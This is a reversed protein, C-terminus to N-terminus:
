HWYNKYFIISIVIALILILAYGYDSAEDNAKDISQDLYKRDFFSTMDRSEDEEQPHNLLIAARYKQYQYEVTNEVELTGSKKHKCQYSIKVPRTNRPTCRASGDSNLECYYQSLTKGKSVDLGVPFVQPHTVQTILYNGNLYQLTGPFPITCTLKGEAKPNCIYTLDAAKDGVCFGPYFKASSGCYYNSGDIQLRFTPSTPPQEM